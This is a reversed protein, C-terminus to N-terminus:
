KENKLLERLAKPSNNNVFDYLEQALEIPTKSTSNLVYDNYKTDILKQIAEASGIHRDGRQKERRRLEEPECHVRVMYVDFDKLKQSIIKIDELGFLVYDIIINRKNSAFLKIMDIMDNSINRAHEGFQCVGNKNFYFGKKGEETLLPYQKDLESHKGYVLHKQPLMWHVGDMMIGYYCEKALEKFETMISTKGSSSTGNLIIIKNKM